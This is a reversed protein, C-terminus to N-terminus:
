STLVAGMDHMVRWWDRELALPAHKGHELTAASVTQASRFFLKAERFTPEIVERPNTVRISGSM